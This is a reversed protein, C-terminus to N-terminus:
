KANLNPIFPVMGVNQMYTKMAHVPFVTAKKNLFHVGIENL